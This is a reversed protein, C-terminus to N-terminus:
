IECAFVFMTLSDPGGLMNDVSYPPQWTVPNYPPNNPPQPRSQSPTAGTFPTCLEYVISDSDPDLASHDYVIPVGACVYVPPWEIFRASSNCGLLAEESIYSSYTAGTSTPAVINVIDQNRCCRQYVIQYGGVQFPLTVTDIYTTTHICVNPPAVLCPDALNLDLTDNNKLQLRLDYILSDNIDFVGISAPSDFWPVGTDCDRFVTVMIEYRDNGLCRYNIEGGVMHTASVYLPLCTFFILYAFVIHLYNRHM